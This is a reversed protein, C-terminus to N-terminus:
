TTSAVTLIPVPVAAGMSIAIVVFFYLPTSYTSTVSLSAAALLKVMSSSPVPTLILSPAQNKANKVASLVTSAEPRSRLSHSFM